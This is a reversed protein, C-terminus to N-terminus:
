CWKEQLRRKKKKEMGAIDSLATNNWGETCICFNGQLTQILSPLGTVRVKSLLADRTSKKKRSGVVHDRRRFKVLAVRVKRKM